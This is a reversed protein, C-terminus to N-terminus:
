KHIKEHPAIWINQCRIKTIKSGHWGIEVNPWCMGMHHLKENILIDLSLASFTWKLNRICLQTVSFFFQQFNVFEKSIFTNIDTKAKALNQQLWNYRTYMNFSETIEMESFYSFQSLPIQTSKVRSPPHHSARRSCFYHWSIGLGCTNEWFALHPFVWLFKM